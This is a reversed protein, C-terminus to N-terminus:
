ALREHIADIVRRCWDELDGVDFDAEAMTGDPARVSVAMYHGHDKLHPVPMTARLDPADPKAAHNNKRNHDWAIVRAAIKVAM